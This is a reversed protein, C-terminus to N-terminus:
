PDHQAYLPQWRVRAAPMCAHSCCTPASRSGCPPAVRLHVDKLRAARGTGEGDGGEAGAGWKFANAFRLMPVDGPLGLLAHLAQRRPLLADEAAGADAAVRPYCATFPLAWGPPRFHHARVAVLGDGGGDGGAPAPQLRRALLKEMLDLQRRLAPGLASSCLAAAPSAGDPVLVLADLGLPVECVSSGAAAPSFELAPAAPAGRASGTATLPALSACPDAARLSAAPLAARV